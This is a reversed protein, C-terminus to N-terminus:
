KSGFLCERIWVCLLFCSFGVNEQKRYGHAFSPEAGTFSLWAPPPCIHRAVRVADYALGIAAGWLVAAGFLQLQTYVSASIYTGGIFM